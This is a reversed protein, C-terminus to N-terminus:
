KRPTKQKENQGGFYNKIRRKATELERDPTAQSKKVFSHVLIMKNEDVTFFIRVIGDKINTRVEWLRDGMKRILPMGLPWGFQATKIDEGIKKKDEKSLGKLWERVSERGNESLYFHVDLIPQNDVM